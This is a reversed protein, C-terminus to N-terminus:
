RLVLVAALVAAIVAVGNQQSIEGSQDFHRHPVGVGTGIGVAGDPM